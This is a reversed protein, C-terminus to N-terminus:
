SPSRVNLAFIINRRFLFFWAATGIVLGSRLYYSKLGQQEKSQRSDKMAKNVTECDAREIVDVVNQHNKDNHSKVLYWNSQGHSDWEKRSTSLDTIWDGDNESQKENERSGSADEQDHKGFFVHTTKVQFDGQRGHLAHDAADEDVDRAAVQDGLLELRAGVDALFVRALPGGDVLM